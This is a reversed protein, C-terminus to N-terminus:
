RGNITEPVEVTIEQFSDSGKRKNGRLQYRM